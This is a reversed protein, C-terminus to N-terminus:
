SAIRDANVARGKMATSIQRTQSYGAVTKGGDAVSLHIARFGCPVLAPSVDCDFANALQVMTRLTPSSAHKMVQSVRARSIGLQRALDSQSMSKEHMLRALNNTFTSLALEHKYEVKSTVDSVLENLEDFLSTSM